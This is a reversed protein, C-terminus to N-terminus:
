YSPAPRYDAIPLIKIPQPREIFAIADRSASFLAKRTEFKCFTAIGPTESSIEVGPRIATGLCDPLYLKIGRNPQINALLYVPEPKGSRKFGFALHWGDPADPIKIFATYDVEERTLPPDGDIQAPRSTIATWKIRRDPEVSVTMRELDDEQIAGIKDIFDGELEVAAYDEPTFLDEESIWCGSLGLAMVFSVIMRQFM